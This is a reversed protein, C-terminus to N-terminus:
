ALLSIILGFIILGVLVALYTGPSTDDNHFKRGNRYIENTVHSKRLPDKSYDKCCDSAGSVYKKTKTCLYVSGSVKGDKKDKEKLYKCSCCGHMM